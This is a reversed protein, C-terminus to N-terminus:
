SLEDMELELLQSRSSKKNEKTFTGSVQINIGMGQRVAALIMHRNSFGTEQWRGSDFSVAVAGVHSLGVPYSVGNAGLLFGVNVTRPSGDIFHSIQIESTDEPLEDIRQQPHLEEARANASTTDEDSRMFQQLIEEPLSEPSGWFQIGHPELGQRFQRLSAIDDTLPM